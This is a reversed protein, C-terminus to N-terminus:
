ALSWVSGMCSLRHVPDFFVSSNCLSAIIKWSLQLRSTSFPSSKPPFRTFIYLFHHNLLEWGPYDKSYHPVLSPLSLSEPSTALSYLYVFGGTDRKILSQGFLYKNIGRPLVMALLVSHSSHCPRTARNHATGYIRMCVFVCVCM